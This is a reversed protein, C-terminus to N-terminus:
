DIKSIFEELIRYLKKVSEINIHEDVAHQTQDGEAGWVIGKIGHEALFRADSAGHEFGLETGKSIDLLMDLYKSNGGQFIPENEIVSLDGEIEMRMEEVIDEMTDNETYRIDFIAEAYDPVQNVSKGATITSFNMTRHWHDPTSKEFYPKLKGYDSILKEIANEGYWPRAGHAAKGRSILKLRLVGKEKVVIKQLDGGDLAICFGAKIEKLAKWAGRKGGIEEDGTILLGCKLDEQGKGEERLHNLHEKVLVLSLAVAYKDDISGRGFLNGEKRYPVFLEDPGDVVDFHSMLLLPVSGDPPTVTISPIQDHDMRKCVLDHTGLYTEIFEACRLIEDPRSHMTQFRILDETLQIIEEM